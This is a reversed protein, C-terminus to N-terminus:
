QGPLRALMSLAYNLNNRALPFDPKLELAQRCAAAALGYRGLANWAAGINNYAEAYGPRLKLAQM